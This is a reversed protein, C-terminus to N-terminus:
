SNSGCRYSKSANETIVIARNRGDLGCLRWSQVAGGGPAGLNLLDNKQAREQPSCHVLNESQPREGKILLESIPDNPFPDNCFVKRLNGRLKQLSEASNRCFKRLREQRLLRKKKNNCIEAFKGCFKRSSEAFVGESVVGYTFQQNLKGPLNLLKEPIPPPPRINVTVIFM